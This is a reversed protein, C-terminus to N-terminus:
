GSRITRRDARKGRGARAGEAPHDSPVEAGTEPQLSLLFSQLNEQAALGLKRRINARHTKITLASAFLADAIQKSSLNLKILVCVRLETPTLHPARNLLRQILSQHAREFQEQFPTCEEHAALASTVSELVKAAFKKTQGKGQRSLPEVLKRITHLAENRRTLDVLMSNLERTRSEAEREAARLRSHLIPERYKKEGLNWRIAASLINERSRAIHEFLENDSRKHLTAQEYEGLLSYIEALREHLQRTRNTIGNRDLTELAAIYMALGEDLEGRLHHVRGLSFRIAASVQVFDNKVALALARNQYELASTLDGSYQHLTGINALSIIIRYLDDRREYYDLAQQMLPLAEACRRLEIYCGAINFQSGIILDERDLLRSLELARELYPLATSFDELAAFVTGLHSLSDIIGEEDNMETRLAHARTHEEFAEQYNGMGVAVLGLTEHIIARHMLNSEEVLELATRFYKAARRLDGYNRHYRGLQHNIKMRTSEKTVRPELRAIMRVYRVLEEKRSTGLLADICIMLTLATLDPDGIERAEHLAENAKVLALNANNGIMGHAEHALLAVERIREETEEGAARSRGTTRMRM